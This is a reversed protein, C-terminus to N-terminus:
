AGHESARVANVLGTQWDGYWFGLQFWSAYVCFVFANATSPAVSNASYPAIEAWYIGGIGGSGILWEKEGRAPWCCCGVARLVWHKWGAWFRGCRWARFLMV